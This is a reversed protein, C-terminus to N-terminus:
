HETLAAALEHLDRASVDADPSPSVSSSIASSSDCPTIPVASAM